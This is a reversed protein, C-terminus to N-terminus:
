KPLYALVKKMIVKTLNELKISGEEAMKIYGEIRARTLQPIDNFPKIAYKTGENCEFGRTLEVVQGKALKGELVIGNDSINFYGNGNQPICSDYKPGFRHIEVNGGKRYYYKQRKAIGTKPYKIALASDINKCDMGYARAMSTDGETYVYQNFNGLSKVVNEFM